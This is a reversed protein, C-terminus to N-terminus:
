QVTLSKLPNLKTASLLLETDQLLNKAEGPSIGCRLDSKLDATSDQPYSLAEKARDSAASELYQM